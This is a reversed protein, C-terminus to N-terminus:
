LTLSFRSFKLLRHVIPAHTWMVVTVEIGCDRDESSRLARMATVTKGSAAKATATKM